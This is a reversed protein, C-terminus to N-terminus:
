KNNQEEIKQKLQQEAGIILKLKESRTLKKIQKERKLALEKTELKEYYILNVPSRGRTYKAGTGNNHAKMRGELDKTWGTYLTEDKCKVIYVYNEEKTNINIDKM